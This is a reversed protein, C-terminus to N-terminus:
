AKGKGKGAKEREEIWKDVSTKRFRPQRGEEFYPIDLTRWNQYLWQRKYNLYIALDKLSMPDPVPSSSAAFQLVAVPTPEKPPLFSPNSIEAKPAQMVRAELYLRDREISLGAIIDLLREAYPDLDEPNVLEGGAMLRQYQRAGKDRITELRLLTLRYLELRYESNPAGALDKRLKAVIPELDPLEFAEREEPTTLRPLITSGFVGGQPLQGTDRAAIPSVANSTRKKKPKPM